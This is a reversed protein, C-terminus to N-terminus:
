EEGFIYSYYLHYEISSSKAKQGIGKNNKIITNTKLIITLNVLIIKITMDKIKM